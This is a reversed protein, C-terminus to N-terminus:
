APKVVDASAKGDPGKINGVVKDSASESPSKNPSQPVALFGNHSDVYLRMDVDSRLAVAKVGSINGALREKEKHNTGSKASEKKNQRAIEAKKDEAESELYVNMGVAEIITPNKGDKNQEDVIRVFEATWILQRSEEYYVPGRTTLTLDDD